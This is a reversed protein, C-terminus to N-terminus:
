LYVDKKLKELWDPYCLSLIEPWGIWHKEFDSKVPVDKASIGGLIKTGVVFIYWGDHDVLWTHQSLPYYPNVQRNDFKFRGIKIVQHLVPRKDDPRVGSKVIRKCTKTEAYITKNNFIIKHDVGEVGDYKVECQPFNEVLFKHVMKHKQEAIKKYSTNTM